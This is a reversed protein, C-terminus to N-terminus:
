KRAFNSSQLFDYNKEKFVTQLKLVVLFTLLPVLNRNQNSHLVTRKMNVTLNPLFNNYRQFTEINIVIFTIFVQKKKLTIAYVHAQYLNVHSFVLCLSLVKNASKLSLITQLHLLERRLHLITYFTTEEKFCRSYQESIIEITPNKIETLVQM